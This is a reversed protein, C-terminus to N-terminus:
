EDDSDSDSDDEPESVTPEFVGEVMKGETYEGDKLLGVVEKDVYVLGTAREYKGKTGDPLTVKKYKKDKKSKKSKKSETSEVSVASKFSAVSATDDAPNTPLPEEKLAEEATEEATKVAALLDDGVVSEVKSAVSSTDSKPRGRKMEAPEWHAEDLVIGVAELKDRAEDFSIGKKILINALPLEKKGDAPHYELLDAEARDRIDGYKPKGSALKQAEKNCKQCYDFEGDRKNTCQTYLQSDLKVGYCKDHNVVGMFPLPFGLQKKLNPKKPAKKVEGDTAKKRGGTKKEVLTIDLYKIAEDLDFGYNEALKTTIELAFKNMLTTYSTTMAIQISM